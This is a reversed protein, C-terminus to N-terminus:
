VVGLKSRVAPDLTGFDFGAEVGLRVVHHMGEALSADQVNRWSAFCECIGKFHTHVVSPNTLVVCVLGRFADCKEEGDTLGRLAACWGSLFM